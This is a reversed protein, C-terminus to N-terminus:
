RYLQAKGEPQTKFRRHTWMYQTPAKRINDELAQNILTADQVEDGSPFGEPGPSFELTYRGTEDDRRYALMVVPSQNFKALRSTATITAANVGFFPAYCAHKAGYDQDPPYWVVKQNKLARIMARMNDRAIVGQMFNQRGQNICHDMLPNNHPRYIAVVPTQLSVLAGGLDLHSYHAGILLVGRGQAKANELIEAGVIDLRQRFTETPQQYATFAEFVGMINHYFVQKCQQQRLEQDWEPFCLALNVEVIRRRRGALRYVVAAVIKALRRQGRYSCSAVLRLVGIFLWSLWYQPQLFSPEQPKSM